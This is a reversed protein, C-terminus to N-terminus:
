SFIGEERASQQRRDIIAHAGTTITSLVRHDPTPLSLSRRPASGSARLREPARM